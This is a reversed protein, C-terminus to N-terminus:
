KIDCTASTAMTSYTRKLHWTTAASNALFTSLYWWHLSYRSAQPCLPSTVIIGIQTWFYALSECCLHICLGLLNCNQSNWAVLEETPRHCGWTITQVLNYLATRLHLLEVSFHKMNKLFKQIKSKLQLLITSIKEDSDDISHDGM